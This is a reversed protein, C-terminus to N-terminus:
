RRGAWQMRVRGGTVPTASNGPAAKGGNRTLASMRRQRLLQRSEDTEPRTADLKRGIANNLSVLADATMPTTQTQPSRPQPPGVKEVRCEYCICHIRM